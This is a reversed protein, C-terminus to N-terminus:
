LMGGVHRAISRGLNVPVANGVLVHQDQLKGVFEYEPPFTQIAAKERVTIERHEDPHILPNRTVTHSIGWRIRRLYTGMRPMVRYIQCGDTDCELQAMGLEWGEYRGSFVAIERRLDWKFEDWSGDKRSIAYHRAQGDYSGVFDLDVPKLVKHELPLDNYYGGKPVHRAREVWTKTHKKRDQNPHHPQIRSFETAVSTRLTVPEPMSPTVGLNKRAGIFVLRKRMQPVDYQAAILVGFSVNYGANEFQEAIVGVIMRDKEPGSGGLRRNALDFVNEMVVFKPKILRVIRIFSMFLSRRPDNMNTETNEGGDFLQNQNLRSFPQCPPGGMVCDVEYFGVGQSEAADKILSGSVTALDWNVVLAKSHNAELTRVAPDWNDVMMVPSWGEAMFGLDLGGAGSFLSVFRKSSASM